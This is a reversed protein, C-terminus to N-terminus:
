RWRRKRSRCARWCSRSEFDRLSGEADGLGARAFATFEYVRVADLDATDPPSGRFAAIDKSLEFVRLGRELAQQQSKPDPNQSIFASEAQRVAQRYELLKAQIRSEDLAQRQQWGVAGAIAIGAAIIAAAAMRRRRRRAQAATSQQVFAM